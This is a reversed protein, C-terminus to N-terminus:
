RLMGDAFMADRDHLVIELEQPVFVRQEWPPQERPQKNMISDRFSSHPLGFFHGLEHAMVVQSGLQSLIIWRKDINSRQRWHVGRIQTGPVDVDDLQAVLFMHVVGRSFAARGIADRQERTNIIAFESGIRDVAVIRFGVDAPGFVFFAHELSAAVWAPTQEAGDAVHLHVGVCHKCDPPCPPTTDLFCALGPEVGAELASPCQQLGLVLPLMTLLALV